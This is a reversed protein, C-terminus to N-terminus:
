RAEEGSWEEMLARIEEESAASGIEARLAFPLLGNSLLERKLDLWSPDGKGKREADARGARWEGSASM